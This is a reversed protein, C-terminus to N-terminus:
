YVGIILEPSIASEEDVLTRVKEIENQETYVEEKYFHVFPYGQDIKSVVFKDSSSFCNPIYDKNITIQSGVSIDKNSGDAIKFIM